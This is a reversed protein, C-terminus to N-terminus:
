PTRDAFFLATVPQGDPGKGEYSDHENGLDPVDGARVAERYFEFARAPSIGDPKARIHRIYVRAVSRSEGPYKLGVLRRAYLAPNDPGAPEALVFAVISLETGAAGHTAAYTQPSDADFFRYPRATTSFWSRDPLLSFTDNLLRDLVLRFTNVPTISDYFRRVTDGPLRVANLIAMREPWQDPEPDDWNLISGPGHDAQLIIVPPRPSAALIRGVMEQAKADIFAVQNRYGAVYDRWVEDEDISGFGGAANMTFFGRPNVKEGHPGFVFPPHPSVIHAFAFVPHALRAVDPLHRLPYLVSERHLDFQSKKFLRNLVLPLATTSILVNAFESLGWRPALHIDANKLDTGGYGSAFSVITYGRQRLEKVVRSNGIMHVIALRNDSEPGARRAVSDLYMMNLSSALSLYTQSYNARSAGAVHFGNEELWRTFGSDDYDYVDKLVDTRAHADLIVYYIDPLDKADTRAPRAAGGSPGNRVLAPVGTVLNIAVLALSVLNLFVTLGGFERRPRGFLLIGTLMVGAAAAPLLWPATRPGIVANVRGYLFFLVIFLSVVLASRRSNRMVLWLLLWLALSAVFSFLLPLLLESPTIPLKAANHVYLFLIPTLAFLLHHVPFPRKL